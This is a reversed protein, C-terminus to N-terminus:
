GPAIGFIERITPAIFTWAFIVASTIIAVRASAVKQWTEITTLRTELHEKYVQGEKVLGDIRARKFEFKQHFEKDLDAIRDNTAIQNDHLDTQFRDMKEDLRRFGTQVAADLSALKYMLQENLTMSSPTQPNAM